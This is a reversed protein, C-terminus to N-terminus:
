LLSICRSRPVPVPVHLTFLRMMKMKRMEDDDLLFFRYLLSFDFIIMWDDM